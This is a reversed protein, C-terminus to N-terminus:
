GPPMVRMSVYPKYGVVESLFKGGLFSSRSKTYFPEIFVKHQPFCRMFIPCGLRSRPRYYSSFGNLIRTKETPVPRTQTGSM